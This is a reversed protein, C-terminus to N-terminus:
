EPIENESLSNKSQTPKDYLSNVADEISVLDAYVGNAGEYKVDGIGWYYILDGAHCRLTYKTDSLLTTLLDAHQEEGSQLRLIGLCSESSFTIDVTDNKVLMYTFNPIVNPSVTFPGYDAFPSLLMVRGAISEDYHSIQTCWDILAFSMDDTICGGVGTLCNIRTADPECLYYRVDKTRNNFIIGYYYKPFNFTVWMEWGKDGNTHYTDMLQNLYDNFEQITTIPEELDQESIKFHIDYGNDDCSYEVLGPTSTEQRITYSRPVRVINNMSLTAYYNKDRIPLNEQRYEPTGPTHVEQPKVSESSEEEDEDEESNLAVPFISTGTTHIRWITTILAILALIAIICLWKNPLKRKRQM